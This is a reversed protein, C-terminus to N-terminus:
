SGPAGAFDISVARGELRARDALFGRIERLATKLKPSAHSEFTRMLELGRRYLSRELRVVDGQGLAARVAPVADVLLGVTRVALDPHREMLRSMERGHRYYLEVLRRGEPTSRLVEDRFERLAGLPNQRRVAVPLKSVRGFDLPVRPTQLQHSLEHLATRAPCIGADLELALGIPFELDPVLMTPNGGTKTARWIGGPNKIDHLTSWYLFSSQPNPAVSFAVQQLGLVTTLGGGEFDVRQIAKSSGDLNYKM